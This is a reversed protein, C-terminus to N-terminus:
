RRGRERKKKRKENGEEEEAKKKIGRPTMYIKCLAYDVIIDRSFAKSVCKTFSHCDRCVRLNKTIRLATGAPTRMLGYAIALKESHFASGLCRDSFGSGTVNSEEPKYGALVAHRVVEKLESYIFASEPHTKDDVVFRHVQDGIEIWSWGPVTRLEHSRMLKRMSAFGQADNAASYISTMLVYDGANFAKLQVLKKMAVEGLELNRHIKCSGLLTRWLVPDEHCSSVHIMELAKDFEGARGYLDVMCGYHKVNPSLCFESSMMKFHEAGEKVLGQHSCGLLLGLFTIANPRVGFTVMERFFSIAEIGKGHVGYGIIMSNWTSVDRKRMGNFVSVANELSGGKAYMDILANGVYVSGECRVDCAKRHLMVGMNLASVHACSSLLAVITYADVCVGENEMRKHMSLAQHHLGAHSLCSIMANWSILDRVPMEDFVKFAIDINGTASYCRVLGTSVINDSHFGSRIVSGHIELSKPVSRLKECAKLAFSFTYIDPRTSLLMQNYFLLSSLPTSSVSFGRLLYNWATTPPDSDFHQFLLLAHSLSGTVSVACFRLLNDFISPHHQLGNTIVHSHIKRLKTMSNCGQLMRVIVRAKECM